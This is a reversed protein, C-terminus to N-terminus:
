SFNDDMELLQEPRCRLVRAIKFVYEAQAKNIDKRRQEYQQITKVPIGTRKALEGQSIGAMKRYKQLYSVLRKGQRLSCIKAVVESPEMRQCEDYLSVFEGLSIEKEIDQFTKGSYWQYYALISGTWFEKSRTSYYSPQVYNDATGLIEIAIEIGSRETLISYDGKSFLDSLGSQLFLNYFTELPVECDHVAYNFMAGLMDCAERLFFEDYACIM